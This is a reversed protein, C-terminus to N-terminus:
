HKMWEKNAAIVDELMYARSNSFTISWDKRQSPLDFVWAAALDVGAEQMATLIGRYRTKVEESSFKGGDALGFEGIFLARKNATAVDRLNKLYDAWGTTWRGCAEHPENDAYIHIGLTDFPSPADRLLIEEWQKRDDPAWSKERTNHWASPRPLSHGTILPRTADIARVAKAFEGLATALQPSKLDDSEDEGPKRLEKANPLDVKLNWENGFEWAWLAPSNKYRGVLKSTYDRMLAITASNPDGWAQKHEGAVHCLNPTWFLSPILGIGAEEAAKVVRDMAAFHAEKDRLYEEWDRESYGGANFRVFPVGAQALEKLGTLSSDNEPKAAIRTFLDYYCIGVARVPKGALLFKGDAVTLGPPEAASTFATIAPAILLASILLIIKM